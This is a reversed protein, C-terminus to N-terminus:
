STSLKSKDEVLITVERIRIKQVLVRLIRILSSDSSFLLFKKPTADMDSEEAGKLKLESWNRSCVWEINGTLDTYKEFIHHLM